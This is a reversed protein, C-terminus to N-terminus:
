SDLSKNAKFIETFLQTSEGTLKEMVDETVEPAGKNKQLQVLESLKEVDARLKKFNQQLQLIEEKDIVATTLQDLQANVPNPIQQSAKM